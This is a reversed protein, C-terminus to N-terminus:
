PVPTYDMRNKSVLMRVILAVMLIVFVVIAIKGNRVDRRSTDYKDLHDEITNATTTDNTHFVRDLKVYGFSSENQTSVMRTTYMSSTYVSSSSTHNDDEITINTVSDNPDDKVMCFPYLPSIISDFWFTGNGDVGASYISLDTLGTFLLSSSSNGIRAAMSLLPSEATFVLHEEIEQNDDGNVAIFDGVSGATYALSLERRM